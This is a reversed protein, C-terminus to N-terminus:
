LSAMSSYEVCWDRFSDSVRLWFFFARLLPTPSCYVWFPLWSSAHPLGILSSTRLSKVGYCKRGGHVNIICWRFSLARITVSRLRLATPVSPPLVSCGLLALCSAAEINECDPRCPAVGRYGCAFFLFNLLGALLVPLRAIFAAGWPFRPTHLLALELLHAGYYEVVYLGSFLGWIYISTVCILLPSYPRM